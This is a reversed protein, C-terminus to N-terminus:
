GAGLPYAHRAQVASKGNAASLVGYLERAYCPFVLAILRKHRHMLPFAV